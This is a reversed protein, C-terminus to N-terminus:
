KKKGKKTIRKTPIVKRSSLFKELAWRVITSEPLGLEAATKTVAAAIKPQFSWTRTVSVRM